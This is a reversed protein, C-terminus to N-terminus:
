YDVMVMESGHKKLGEAYLQQVEADALYAAYIEVDDILGPYYETGAGSYGIFAGTYQTLLGTQAATGVLRGDIYWRMTAGDYSLLIHQWRNSVIIGRSTFVRGNTQSVTDFYLGSNRLFTMFGSNTRSGVLGQWADLSANTPYIWASITLKDTVESDIKPFTVSDNVGDFSLSYGKGSPTNPSWATGGSLTGAKNNGGIDAAVTSTGEDAMIALITDSGIGHQIHAAFQQNAAIRGKERAANLSALVVSSLLAVISIVVLLEILTFARRFM